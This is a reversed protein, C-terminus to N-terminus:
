AGIFEATRGARACAVLNASACLVLLRCHNKYIGKYPVKKFHFLNKITHFAHEVKCRVSAKRHEIYREWNFGEYVAMTKLTSPRLCIRFDIDCFNPNEIIESRKEIGLYGADGYVVEDDPRLLDSTAVIDSVNAATSKVTHIYGTGADVGIHGKMGFYWQGGKKTQHMEPDRKGTRNKTSSPASIITADVITGGHMMLGQQELCKVIYKFMMECLGHEELLHRFHLLTTADPVQEKTFDIKMFSKMAYSDYIADEVGVDSLSFWVQLFYMRLMTEIGIPPRGRKGNPYYPRIITTWEEWPVISDMTTLFEERATKKRRCQYEQDSLTQNNQTTM